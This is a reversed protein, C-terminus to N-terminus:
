GFVLFRCSRSQQRWEPHREHMTRTASSTNYTFMQITVDEDHIQLVCEQIVWFAVKDGHPVERESLCTTVHIGLM